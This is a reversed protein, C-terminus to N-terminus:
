VRWERGVRSREASGPVSSAGRGRGSAQGTRVVAWLVAVFGTTACVTAVAAFMWGNM